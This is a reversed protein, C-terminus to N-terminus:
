GEVEAKGARDSPFEVLRQAFASVFQPLCENSVHMPTLSLTYTPRHKTLQLCLFLPMSHVGIGRKEECEKIEGGGKRVAM